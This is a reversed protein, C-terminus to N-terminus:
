FVFDMAVSTLGVRSPPREGTAAVFTGFGNQRLRADDYQIKLDMNEHFNWKVGVTSSRQGESSGALAGAGIANLASATPTLAALRPANDLASTTNLRSFGVYPTFQGMRYGALASWSRTDPIASAAKRVAFEAQALWPGQDYAVSLAGFNARRKDISFFDAAGYAQRALASPAGNAMLNAGYQGYGGVLADLGQARASLKATAYAARWTLSGNELTASAVALESAKLHAGAPLKATSKGVDGRLTLQGLAAQHRWAAGVGDMHTMPLGHHTELQPRALLRSHGRLRSEGGAFIPPASRGLTLDLNPAAQYNLFAWEVGPRFSGDEQRQSVVQLVGSVSSSLRANAQLGLISDPAFSTSRSAGAGSPQRANSVFDVRDSDSHVAGLTGFGGFTVSPTEQAVASGCALAAGLAIASIHFISKKL